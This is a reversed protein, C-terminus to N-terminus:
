TPPPSWHPRALRERTIRRPAERATEPNPDRSQIPRQARSREPRRRRAGTTAPRKTTRGPHRDPHGDRARASTAAAMAACSSRPRRTARGCCRRAVDRAHKACLEAAIDICTPVLGAPMPRPTGPPEQVPPGPPAGGPEAGALRDLRSAGPAMPTGSTAHIEGAQPTCPLATCELQIGVIRPDQGMGLERAKQQCLALDLQICTLGNAAGFPLRDCALGRARRDGRAIVARWGACRHARGKPSAPRILGRHRRARAPLADAARRDRRRCRPPDPGRDPRGTEGELYVGPEVSFVTPSPLPTDPAVRSLRPRRTRPSASGTVRATGSTSATAPPTSSTARRPMPRAVASRAIGAGRREGRDGRDGGGPGRAVLEYVELAEASPEGVFLTRTMDSRYGEVQAGFDFLLVQRAGGAPRRAGRAAPRGAARRPVRRPVRAGGRRRDADAVGAAPRAGGGDRGPRIEPLSRRSRAIPSRARPRSASWSTRPRRRGGTRWGARSRARARRGAGGGRPAAVACAPDPPRWAGRAPCRHRGADRAMGRAPRLRRRPDHAGPVQETAQITYRSDALVTLSEPASSSSGRTGPSRRRARTSASAPSGACTSAAARRLVRRPGRGALRGASAPWGHRAARPM